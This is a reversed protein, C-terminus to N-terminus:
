GSRCNDAILGVQGSTNRFAILNEGLLRIRMPPCDAEPLEFSQFAPMWYERLVDGMPTGPGIRCLFENDEKTLM